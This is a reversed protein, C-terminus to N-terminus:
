HVESKDTILRQESEKMKKVQLILFVEQIIKKVLHLLVKKLRNVAPKLLM